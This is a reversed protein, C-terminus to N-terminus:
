PTVSQLVRYRASWTDPAAHPPADIVLRQGAAFTPWDPLGRSNPNGTKIFNAFYQEMMQSVRHDDDTWAYLVNSDLNGLAYEIESSHTAGRPPPGDGYPNHQGPRFPSRPHTFYYYYTSAGGTRTASDIWQWTSMAIWRDSALDRAADLVSDGDATAPYAAFVADAHTGYLRTLAARYNLVTPLADQLVGEAGGEASNSGVMLPVHAQEGAAYIDAVDRPFVYGDIVPGIDPAGQQRSLGLIQEAPMARLQTLSKGGAFQAFQLGKQEGQMMGDIRRIMMSGSEGIAGAIMTRSLPSSMMASSSMSGASEGAITVRRPDGGFATINDRVWKLAAVQDLFGYNGSAHYSAEATLDPHALFGFAGLRYNVTVVVVGHEAMSEGDYRLESGDGAILGGGYFYVLVPLREGSGEAPTWVNLYLCDESVGNSRFVMDPFIPAQMCRPGFQKADRVNDWGEVPQPARWRLPGVPPAAYPIGRFIRVGTDQRGLGSLAGDSIRVIDSGAGRDSTCASMLLLALGALLMRM